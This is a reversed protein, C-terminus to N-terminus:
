MLGGYKQANGEIRDRPEPKAAMPYDVWFKKSRVKKEHGRNLEPYTVMASASHDARKAAYGHAFTMFEGVDFTEIIHEAQLIHLAKRIWRDPENESTSESPVFSPASVLKENLLQLIEEPTTKANEAVLINGLIIPQSSVSHTRVLDNGSSEDQMASYHLPEPHKKRPLGLMHHKHPEVSLFWSGSPKAMHDLHDSDAKISTHGDTVSVYINAKKSGLM